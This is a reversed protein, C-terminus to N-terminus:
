KLFNFFLIKKTKRNILYLNNYIFLKNLSCLINKYKDVLFLIKDKYFSSIKNRKFIKNIKVKKENNYVYDGKEWNKIYIPRNIKDYDIYIYKKKYYKNKNKKLFFYIKNKKNVYIINPVNIKKYIKIISNKSFFIKNKGKIIKYKNDNSYIKKGVNLLIIRKLSNINYFKYKIFLRYLIYEYNKIKILLDIYIFKYKINLIEKFFLIEKKIQKIYRNIIKYEFNLKILTNNIYSNFNNFEKKLIPIINNRIQNRLYINTFNSKDNIWSIKNKLAYKYIQNKDIKFILYPRIIKKNFPKIGKLGYISSGRFLNLFFTEINDDFHHATILYNYNYKKIIKNFWAYRLKRAGMQISKKRKKIYKLTNFKKFFFNIKKKICFKLVLLYNKNNNILNFNCTCVSINNNLIKNLIYLIVMSDVGGSVAILFKKNIYKKCIFFSKFIKDM